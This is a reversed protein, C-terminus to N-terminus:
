KGFIAQYVNFKLTVRRDDHLVLDIDMDADVAGIGLYTDMFGNYPTTQERVAPSFGKKPDYRYEVKAIESIIDPPATIWISYHRRPRGNYTDVIKEERSANLTVSRRIHVESIRPPVVLNAKPNIEPRAEKANANLVNGFKSPSPPTSNARERAGLMRDCWQEFDQDLAAISQGTVREVLRVAEEAPDGEMAEVNRNRFAHYMPALQQREQLMLMFYRATAHVVVQRESRYEGGADDFGRWDMRVLDGLPPRNGRFARLVEGRWNPLGQVSGGRLQSVEYLAAIGEDLWPPIDGFNNYVLLHFLEHCLTGDFLGVLSLDDRYSYGVSLESVEIGHLSEAMRRVSGSEPLCYVTIFNTPTRMKFERAFFDLYQELMQGFETLAAPSRLREAPSGVPAAGGVDAKKTLLFHGHAEVVAGPGMLRKVTRIGQAAASIPTLRDAMEQAPIDRLVKVPVSTVPLDPSSVPYFMKGGVRAGTGSRVVVFNIVIPTQASACNQMEELVQQRSRDDLRHNYLLWQFYQKGKAEYGPL